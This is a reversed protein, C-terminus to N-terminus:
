ARQLGKRAAGATLMDVLEAPTGAVARAGAALLTEAESHGWSVGVALVGAARAAAMDVVTDGVMAAREPQVGLRRLAELVGEPDPKPAAEGACVAVDIEAALGVREADPEFRRRGKSTVVATSIGAARLAVLMEVIGPFARLTRSHREYAEQFVEALQASQEEDRALVPWISMGSQTFVVDEEAVDAPYRRGLVAETSEHWSALLAARSDSLTGDWDFLVADMM